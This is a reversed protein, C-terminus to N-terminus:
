VLNALMLVKQVKKAEEMSLGTALCTAWNLLAATLLWFPKLDFVPYVFKPRAELIRATLLM